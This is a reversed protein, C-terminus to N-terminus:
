ISSLYTSHNKFFLPTTADNKHIYTHTLMHICTYIRKLGTLNIQTLPLINLVIIFTLDWGSNKFNNQKFTITSTKHRWLLQYKLITTIGFVKRNIMALLYFRASFETFFVIFYVFSLIWSCSVTVYFGPSPLFELLMSPWCHSISWFSKHYHWM